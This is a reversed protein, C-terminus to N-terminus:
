DGFHLFLEYWEVVLFCILGVSFHASSRLLGKELSSVWIALSCMFIHEVDCIILFVSISVVTLDWRMGTLIPMM